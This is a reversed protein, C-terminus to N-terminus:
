ALGSTDIVSDDIAQVQGNSQPSAGSPDYTQSFATTGRLRIERFECYAKVVTAGDERGHTWNLNILNCNYYTGTETLVTYLTLSKRAALMDRQFNNRRTTDGDCSLMVQVNDPEDVKNYSAFGGNEIPYDAVRADSRMDFSVFSTYDSIPDGEDTFVGWQVPESGIISDVLDGAGLFGLTISDFIQAGARLVAPVGVLKPVLPYLSKPITPITM